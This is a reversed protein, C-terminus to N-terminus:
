VQTRQSNGRNSSPVTEGQKCQWFGEDNRVPSNFRGKDLEVRVLIIMAKRTEGPFQIREDTVM